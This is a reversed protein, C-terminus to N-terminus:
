AGRRRKTNLIAPQTRKRTRSQSTIPKAKLLKKDLRAADWGTPTSVLEGPFARKGRITGSARAQQILVPDLLAEKFVQIIDQVKATSHYQHREDFPVMVAGRQPHLTEWLRRLHPVLPTFYPSINSLIGGEFHRFMMSSKLHGLDGLNNMAFWRRIPSPHSERGEVGYLIPHRITNCPGDLHSCIFILVFFLSELDHVVHHPAAYMLLEIAIFPATGQSPKEIFSLWPNLRFLGVTRAGSANVDDLSGGM